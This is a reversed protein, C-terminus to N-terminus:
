EYTLTCDSDLENSDAEQIFESFMMENPEFGPAPKVQFHYFDLFM